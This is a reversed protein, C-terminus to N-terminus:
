RYVSDHSPDLLQEAEAGPGSDDDGVADRQLIVAGPVSGVRWRMARGPSGQVAVSAPANPASGGPPPFSAQLGESDAQISLVHQRYREEEDFEREVLFRRVDSNSLLAERQHNRPFAGTPRVHTSPMAHAAMVSVPSPEGGELGGGDDGGELGEEDSADRRWSARSTCGRGISFFPFRRRFSGRAETSPPIIPPLRVRRTSARGNAALTGDAAADHGNADQESFRQEAGERREHTEALRGARGRWMRGLAKAASATAFSNRSGLQRLNPPLLM